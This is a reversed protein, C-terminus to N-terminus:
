ILGDAKLRETIETAFKKGVQEYSMGTAGRATYNGTWIKRNDQKLHLNVEYKILPDEQVRHKGLNLNYGIGGFGGNSGYGFTGFPGSAPEIYETVMEYDYPKIDLRAEYPANSLLNDRQSKSYDRTPLFIKYSQEALVGMKQLSQVTGNEIAMREDVSTGIVQVLISKAPAGNWGPDTFSSGDTITTQACATIAMFALLAIAIFRIM